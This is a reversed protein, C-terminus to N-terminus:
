VDPAGEHLQTFFVKVYQDIRQGYLDPSPLEGNYGIVHDGISRGLALIVLPEFISIQKAQWQQQLLAMLPHDRYPQLAILVAEAVDAQLQILQDLACHNLLSQRRTFPTQEAKLLGDLLYAGWIVLTRVPVNLTAQRHAQTTRHNSADTATSLQDADTGFLPDSAHSPDSSHTSM